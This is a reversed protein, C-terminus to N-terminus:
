LLVDLFFVPAFDAGYVSRIISMRQFIPGPKVLMKAVKKTCVNTVPCNRVSVHINRDVEYPPYTALSPILVSRYAVTGNFFPNRRFIDLDQEDLVSATNQAETCM